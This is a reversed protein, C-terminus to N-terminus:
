FKRGNKSTQQIQIHKNDIDHGRLYGIYRSHNGLTNMQACNSIECEQGNYNFKLNPIAQGPTEM